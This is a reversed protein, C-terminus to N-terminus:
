LRSLRARYKKILSKARPHRSFKLVHQNMAIDCRTCLWMTFKRGLACPKLTWSHIPAPRKRCHQCLRKAM